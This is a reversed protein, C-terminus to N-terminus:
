SNERERIAARLEELAARTEDMSDLYRQADDAMRRMAEVDGSKRTEHVVVGYLVTVPPYDYNEAM